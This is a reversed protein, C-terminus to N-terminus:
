VIRQLQVTVLILIRALEKQLRASDLATGSSIIRKPNWNLINVYILLLLMLLILFLFLLVMLAPSKLERFLM